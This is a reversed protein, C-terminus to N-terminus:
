DKLFNYLSETTMKECLSLNHLKVYEHLAQNLESVDDFDAYEDEAYVREESEEEDNSRDFDNDSFNRNYEDSM